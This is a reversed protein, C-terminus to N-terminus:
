RDGDDKEESSEEGRRSDEKWSGPAYIVGLHNMLNALQYSKRKEERKM